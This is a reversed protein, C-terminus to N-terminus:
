FRNECRKLPILIHWHMKFLYVYISRFRIRLPAFPVSLYYHFYHFFFFESRALSCLSTSLCLVHIADRTWNIVDREESHHKFYSCYQGQKFLLICHVNCMMSKVMEVTHGNWDIKWEIVAIFQHMTNLKILGSACESMKCNLCCIMYFFIYFTFHQQSLLGRLDFEASAYFSRHVINLITLYSLDSYRHMGNWQM